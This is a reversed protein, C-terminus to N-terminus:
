LLTVTGYRPQEFDSTPLANEASNLLSASSNDWGEHNQQKLEVTRVAM